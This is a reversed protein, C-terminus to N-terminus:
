EAPQPAPTPKVQPLKPVGISQAAAQLGAAFMQAGVQGASHILAQTGQASEKVVQPDMETKFSGIQIQTISVGNTRVITVTTNSLTSNKPSVIEVNGTRPNFLFKAKPVAQATSCGALLSLALIALLALGFGKILQKPTFM